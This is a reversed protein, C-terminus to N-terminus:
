LATKRTALLSPLQKLLSSFRGKTYPWTSALARKDKSSLPQLVKETEQPVVLSYGLSSIPFIMHTAQLHPSSIETQRDTKLLNVQNFRSLVFKITDIQEDPITAVQNLWYLVNIVGRCNPLLALQQETCHVFVWSSFLPKQPISKKSQWTSRIGSIPCYTEIGRQSLLQAVKKECNPKTFVVHWNLGLNM